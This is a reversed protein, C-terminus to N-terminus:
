GGVFVQRLWVVHQSRQLACGRLQPEVVELLDNPVRVISQEITQQRLRLLPAPLKNALGSPQFPNQVLNQDILFTFKLDIKVRLDLLLAVRSVNVKQGSNAVLQGVAVM